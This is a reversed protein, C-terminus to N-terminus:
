EEGDGDELQTLVLMDVLLIAPKGAADVGWYVPYAGDGYGSTAVVADDPEALHLMLAAAMDRDMAFKEFEQEKHRSTVNLLASVDSIFVNAADIGIVHGRDGMDAPHWRVVPNDSIKLRLAAVRKFAVSVEVPYRGPAIRQGLPALIRSDYGLDGAVLIGSGVKLTGIRRVEVQSSLGDIVAVRGAAFLAAGDLAAERKPLARLAHTKPNTFREREQPTMFPEEASDLYTRLRVIRWDGRVERLEYVFYRSDFKGALHTEIVAEQGDRAHRIIKEAGPAHDPNSSMATDLGSHGDKVFHAADLRSIATGWRDFDGDERIRDSAAHLRAFDAIFAQVRAEPTSAAAAVGSLLVSM